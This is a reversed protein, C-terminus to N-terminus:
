SATMLGHEELVNLLLTQQTRVATIDALVATYDLDIETMWTRISAVDVLLAEYDLDMETAWTRNAAVDVLLAETMTVLNRRAARTIFGGAAIGDEDVNPQTTSTAADVTAAISTATAAEVAAAIATGTIAASDAVNAQRQGILPDGTADALASDEPRLTAM